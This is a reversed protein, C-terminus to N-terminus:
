KRRYRSLGNAVATVSAFKTRTRIVPDPDIRVGNENMYDLLNDKDDGEITLYISAKSPNGNIGLDHAYLVDSKKNQNVQLKTDECYLSGDKAYLEFERNMWTNNYAKAAKKAAIIIIPIGAITILLAAAVLAAGGIVGACVISATLAAIYVAFVIIVNRISKNLKQTDRVEANVEM